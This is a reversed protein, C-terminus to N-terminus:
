ARGLKKKMEPVAKDFLVTEQFAFGGIASALLLAMISLIPGRSPKKAPTKQNARAALEKKWAIRLQLLSATITATAGILSALLAAMPMSINGLELAM